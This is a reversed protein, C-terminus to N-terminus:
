ASLSPSIILFIMMIIVVIVVAVVMMMIVIIAAVRSPIPTHAIPAIFENFVEPLNDSPASWTGSASVEVTTVAVKDRRGIEIVSFVNACGM